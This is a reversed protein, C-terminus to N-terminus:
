CRREDVLEFGADFSAVLTEDSLTAPVSVVLPDTSAVATVGMELWELDTLPTERVDVGREHHFGVLAPHLAAAAAVLAHREDGCRTCHDRLLAEVPLESAWEADRDAWAEEDATLVVRRDIPGDCRHCFGYQTAALRRKVWRDVLEYVEGRDCGALAGPPVDVGNFRQDCELCVVSVGKETLRTALPGGCRLCDANAPVTEGALDGTFGGSLVAGVVRRGAPALEYGDDRGRVFQGDLKRLHYNFRGPDDVGIRERLATHSLPGADDLARVIRVRIEHALLGFSEEPALREVVVGDGTATDTMARALSVPPM